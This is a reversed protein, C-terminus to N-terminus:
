KHHKLKPTKMKLIDVTKLDDDTKLNDKKKFHKHHFAIYLREEPTLNRVVKIGLLIRNQAGSLGLM